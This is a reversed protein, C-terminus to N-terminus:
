LYAVILVVLTLREMPRTLFRAIFQICEGPVQQQCTFNVGIPNAM